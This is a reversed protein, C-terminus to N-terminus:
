FLLEMTVWCHELAMALTVITKKRTPDLSDEGEVSTSLYVLAVSASFSADLLVMFWWTGVGLCSMTGCCSRGMAFMGMTIMLIMQTM